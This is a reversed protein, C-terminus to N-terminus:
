ESVRGKQTARGDAPNGVCRLGPLCRQHIWTTRCPTGPLGFLCKGNQCTTHETCHNDWQSKTVKCTAPTVIVCVGSVCKYNTFKGRCKVYKNCEAFLRAHGDRSFDTERLCTMVGDLPLCKAGVECGKSGPCPFGMVAPQAATLSCSLIAAMIFLTMIPTM